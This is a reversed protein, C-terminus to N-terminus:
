PSFKYSLIHYLRNLSAVYTMTHTSLEQIGERWKLASSGFNLFHKISGCPVLFYFDLSVTKGLTGHRLTELSILRFSGSIGWLSAGALLIVVAGPSGDLLEQKVNQILKM